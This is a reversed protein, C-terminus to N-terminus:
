GIARLLYHNARELEGRESLLMGLEGFTARAEDCLGLATFGSGALALCEIAEEDRGQARAIRGLIVRAAHGDATVIGDNHEALTVARGAAQRAEELTGADYYYRALTVQTAIEGTVDGLRNSLALAAHMYPLAEDLRQRDLQLIGLARNVGAIFQLQSLATLLTESRGAYIGAREHEGQTAYERALALDALGQQRLDDRTALLALARRYTAVANDAQGQRHLVEALGALARAALAHEEPLAELLELCRRHHGEAVALNDRRAAIGGMALHVEALRFGGKAGYQRAAAELHRVADALIAPSVTVADQAAFVRGLGSHAWARDDGSGLDEALALANGFHERSQELASARLTAEGLNLQLRLALLNADSRAETGTLLYSESLRLQEALFHLTLLSPTIKGNEIRSILSPSVTGAGLASLSLGRAKRAARLRSGLQAFPAQSM